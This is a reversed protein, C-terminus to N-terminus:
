KRKRKSRKTEIEPLLEKDFQMEEQCFNGDQKESASSDKKSDSIEVKFEKTKPEEIKIIKLRKDIKKLETNNERKIKRQSKKKSQYHNKIM